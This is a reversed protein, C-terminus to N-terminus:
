CLEGGARRRAVPSRGPDAESERSAGPLGGAGGSTTAALWRTRLKRSSTTSMRASWRLWGASWVTRRTRWRTRRAAQRSGALEKAIQTKQKNRLKEELGADKLATKTIVLQPLTLQRLRQLMLLRKKTQNAHTLTLQSIMSRKLKTKSQLASAELRGSQEIKSGLFYRPKPSGMEVKAFHDVASELSAGVDVAPASSPALSAGANVSALSAEADVTPASWHGLAAIIDDISPSAV